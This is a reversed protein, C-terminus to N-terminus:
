ELVLFFCGDDCKGFDTAAAVNPHDIHSAAIAEREFRVVAEPSQTTAAHMVKIAFRKHMLLHQALYVIGMGGEDLLREIRYRDSLVKGVLGAGESERAELASGENESVQPSMM